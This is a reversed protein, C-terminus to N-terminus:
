VPFGIAQGDYVSLNRSVVIPASQERWIRFHETQTHAKLAEQDQWEEVFFFTCDDATDQLFRYSVCGQENITADVAAAAVAKIEAQLGPKIVMRSIVIVM